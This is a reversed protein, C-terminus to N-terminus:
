RGPDDGAKAAFDKVARRSAEDNGPSGVGALQVLDGAKLEAVREEPRGFRDLLGRGRCRREATEFEAEVDDVLTACNRYVAVVPVRDVGAGDALVVFELLDLDLM